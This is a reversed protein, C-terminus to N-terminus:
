CSPTSGPFTRNRSGPSSATRRATNFRSRSSVRPLNTSRHLLPSHFAATRLSLVTSTYEAVWAHVCKFHVEKWKQRLTAGIARGGWLRDIDYILMLHLACAPM